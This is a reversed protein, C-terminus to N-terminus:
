EEVSIQVSEAPSNTVEVIPTGKLSREASSPEESMTKIKLMTSNMRQIMGEQRNSMEKMKEEYTSSRSLVHNWDKKIKKIFEIMNSDLM